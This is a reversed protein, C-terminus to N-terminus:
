GGAAFRRFERKLLELEARLHQVEVMLDDALVSGALLAVRGLERRAGGNGAGEAGDDAILSLSHIGDSLLSAPLRARITWRDPGAPSIDAEAVIQAHHLVAVRRPAQAANLVGSWCGAQLGHDDLETM